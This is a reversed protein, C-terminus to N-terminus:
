SVVVVLHHLCSNQAHFQLETDVTGGGGEISCEGRGKERYACELVSPYLLAIGRIHLQHRMALILAPLVLTVFGPSTFRRFSLEYTVGRLYCCPM